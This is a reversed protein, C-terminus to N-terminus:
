AYKQRRRLFNGCSAIKRFFSDNNVAIAPAAAPATFPSNPAPPPMTSTGSNVASVLMGSLAMKGAETDMMRGIQIMDKLKPAIPPTNAHCSASGYKIPLAAPPM